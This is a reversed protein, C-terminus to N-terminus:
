DKKIKINKENMLEKIFQSENNHPCLLIVENKTRTLAVYFLRREESSKISNDKVILNELIPDTKIKSPFGIIDNKLNIIIVNDYGLGKSAHVTMYEINVNNYKLYKLKNKEIKIQKDNIANIDFNYRGLILINKKDSYKCILYDLSEILKKEIENGKYYTITIPNALRKNSKLTKKIQFKNKQIFNGAINILEQSNRYTNTIKKIECNKINRKFQTFLNINSSAFGYICQWDDGVVMIKCKIKNIINKILEFRCNSIDQYEDIIIYKYKLNVDNNSKVIENAKNILDDFDLLNNKYLYEEYYDYLDKIFELFIKNRTNKQEINKFDNLGRAKYLSIFTICFKIFRSYIIDKNNKILDKFVQKPNRDKIEINKEILKKELNKMINTNYIEILETKNKKHIQRIKKINMNYKYKKIEEIDFYEIYYIKNNQYITFDPKYNEDYIYKKKYEYKINKMFLYNAIKNENLSYVTEKKNKNIYEVKSKLTPYKEKCKYNYYNDLDHFIMIDSSIEFYYLFFDLFQKFKKNNMILNKEIYQKIIDYNNNLIKFKRKENTKIIEYGFKHFTTINVKHNFDNNVRSKLENVAKNTFSIVLIEDEKINEKDILYNIKATITTTKGSGAGAIVMLNNENNIIIKRQEKDLIINKDVNEFMKDFYEKEMKFKIKKNM